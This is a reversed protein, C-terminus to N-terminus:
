SHLEIARKTLAILGGVRNAMEAKTNDLNVGARKHALENRLRKYITEMRRRGRHLFPTQPVAPDERIIFADVDQQKDDYLMLLINYLHMFEAVPSESQRASRLLGYHREGPPSAQGLESKLQEASIGLVTKVSDTFFVNTNLAIAHVGPQPQMSFFQDGTSLAKEIAIGRVFAIRNLVVTNVEAALVRGDDDTAVSTVYVTSRIEDGDPGEIEIKDVGPKKPNFEFLPFTIGNGKIKATFNVTGKIMSKNRCISFETANELTVSYYDHAARFWM